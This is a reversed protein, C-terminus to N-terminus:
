PRIELITGTDAYRIIGTETARMELHGSYDTDVQSIHLEQCYDCVYCVGETRRALTRTAQEDTYTRLHCITM